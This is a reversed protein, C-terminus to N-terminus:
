ANKLHQLTIHDIGCAKNDDLMRTAGYVDVSRINEVVVVYSEACHFLYLLTLM